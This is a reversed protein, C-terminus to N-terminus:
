AKSSTKIQSLLSHIMQEDMHHVWEPPCNLKNQETEGWKPAIFIFIAGVGFGVVVTVGCFSEWAVLVNFPMNFIPEGSCVSEFFFDWTDKVSVGVGFLCPGLCGFCVNIELGIFFGILELSIAM